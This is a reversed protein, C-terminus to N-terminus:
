LGIIEDIEEDTIESPIKGDVELIAESAAEAVEGILGKAEMLGKQLHLLNPIKLM